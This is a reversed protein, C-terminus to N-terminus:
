AGGDRARIPAAVAAASSVTPPTPYPTERCPSSLGELVAEAAVDLEVPCDEPEVDDDLLEKDERPDAEDLVVVDADHRAVSAAPCRSAFAAAADAM